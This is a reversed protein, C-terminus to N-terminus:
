WSEQREYKHEWEAVLHGSSEWWEWDGSAWRVLRGNGLSSVGYLGTSWRSGALCPCQTRQPGADQWCATVQKALHKNRNGADQKHPLEFTRKWLNMLVKERCQTDTHRHRPGRHQLCIVLKWWWDTMERESLLASMYKSFYPAIKVCGTLTHASPPLLVLQVCLVLM